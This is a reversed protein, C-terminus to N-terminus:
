LMCFIVQKNVHHIMNTNCTCRLRRSEVEVKGEVLLRSSRQRFCLEVAELKLKKLLLLALSNLKLSLQSDPFHDHLNYTLHTNM